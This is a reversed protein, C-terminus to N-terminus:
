CLQAFSSDSFIARILIGAASSPTIADAAVSAPLAAGFTAAILGPVFGPAGRTGDRSSM